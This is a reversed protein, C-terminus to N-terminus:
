GGSHSLTLRFIPPKFSVSNDSYARTRAACNAFPSLYQQYTRENQLLQFSTRGTDDLLVVEGDLIANKVPLGALDDVLSKFRATWDKGNRSIFSIKGDLIRCLMRYGDFKIEHIWDDGNPAESVLTALEM